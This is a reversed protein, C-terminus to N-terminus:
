RGIEAHGAQDPTYGGTTLGDLDCWVWTTGGDGSIRPAYDYTGATGIVLDAQYEDNDAGYDPAAPGYGANPTAPVYTWAGGMGLSPDSGDEGYGLEVVLEPAPDTVGSQDTLGPAYVRIYVTTAEGEATMVTPPYQLNCWEVDYVAPGGESSSDGTSSSSGAGTSDGESGTSDGSTTSGAATTTDDGTVQGGESSSAGPLPLTTATMNGGSSSGSSGAADDEGPDDTCGLVVLSCALPLWFRPFVMVM